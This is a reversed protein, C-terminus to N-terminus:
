IVALYSLQVRKWVLVVALFSIYGVVRFFILELSFRSFGLYKRFLKVEGPQSKLVQHFVLHFHSLASDVVLLAKIAIKNLTETAVRALKATAVWAMKATAVRALKATAVIQSQWASGADLSALAM